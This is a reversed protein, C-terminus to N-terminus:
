LLLRASILTLLVQAKHVRNHNRQTIIVSVTLPKSKEVFMNLFCSPAHARCKDALFSPSTDKTRCFRAASPPFLSSTITQTHTHEPMNNEFSSLFLSLLIVTFVYKCVHRGKRTETDNGCLAWILVEMGLLIYFIFPWKVYCNIYAQSHSEQM